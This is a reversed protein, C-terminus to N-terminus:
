PPSARRRRLGAARVLAQPCPVPPRSGRGLRPLRHRRGVRDRHQAPVRARGVDRTILAERDAVYLVDCDMGALLWKHPDICYSDVGDLGATVFSRLEPVAGASGAMAADVHVWAGSRGAVDVIAPVPDVALFSTTGVTAVVLFPRLGAAADGEIAAALADPQMRREADVDVLRLQDASLGALRIAKEVSSHADVSAYARLGALAGVDGDTAAERAAVTAVFNATSAADQIVGGGSSDSRFSAPLGLVDVLWDCVHAELETAAPSTAWLMGQQGVAATVLEGLVAAPAATAPSTRM